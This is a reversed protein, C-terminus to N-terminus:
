GCNKEIWEKIYDEPLTGTFEDVVEGNKFLKVNPIGKIEYAEAIRPNKDINIKALIFKNDYRKVLKKLISDLILCPECWEAWFDVIVPINKSQEIVKEKFNEDNVEIEM